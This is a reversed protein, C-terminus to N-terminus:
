PARARRNKSAAAVEQIGRVMVVLNLVVALLTFGVLWGMIEAEDRRLRDLTYFPNLLHLPSWSRMVSRGAVVSALLPLLTGALLMIPVTARAWWNRSEADSLASRVRCGVASFFIVYLWAAILSTWAWSDGAPADYLSPLLWAGGLVLGALGLTFVLGRGCGPLLPAVLMALLPNRPVHRRVRPSLARAETAAFFPFLCLAVACMAGAFLLQDGLDFYTRLSGPGMRKYNYITWGFTLLVFGISFLRFKTSRNEYPHALASSGIMAFLLTAVIPVAVLSTFWHLFEDAALVQRMDRVLEDVIEIAGATLWGLGILMIAFPVVKFFAKWRCLAGCAIGLASCALAVIFALALMVAITPVDVGRLLFTMALLPSFIALYIAFQVTTALLKGRVIGAPSLRSMLLHEVTGGGVEARMSLFAQFPVIFFLIPILVRLTNLFAEAGDRPSVEDQSAVVLAIITIALLALAATVVFAKGNLAQHVERVLIPNLRDGIRELLSRRPPQAAVPEVPAPTPAPAAASM